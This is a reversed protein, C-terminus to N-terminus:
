LTCNTCYAEKCFIPVVCILRMNKKNSPLEPLKQKTEKGNKKM